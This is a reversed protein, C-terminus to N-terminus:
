AACKRRPSERLCSSLRKRDSGAVDAGAAKIRIQQSLFPGLGRRVPAPVRYIIWRGDRVDKVLGAERLIRLQHSVRSQELGLVATLECVCLDRRMLLLVIRLRTPDSLAKFTAVLSKM